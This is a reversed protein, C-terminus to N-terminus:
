GYGGDAVNVGLLSGGGEGMNLVKAPTDRGMALEIQEEAWNYDESYALGQSERYRWVLELRLLYEDIRATDDDKLFETQATGADSQAWKTSVYEFAITNGTTDVPLILIANGRVRFHTRVGTTVIGSKLRQWTPGDHPGAFPWQNSRDWFTENVFFAHDSQIESYSGAANGDTTFSHEVVLAQWPHRRSLTEGIDNLIALCRIATEDSSGIIAAPAAFGARRASKQIITKLTM